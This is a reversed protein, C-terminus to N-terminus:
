ANGRVRRAAGGQQGGEPVPAGDADPDAAAPAGPAHVVGDVTDPGDGSAAAGPGTAELGRVAEAATQQFESFIRRAAEAQEVIARKISHDIALVVAAVALAVLALSVARRASKAAATAAAVLAEPAIDDTAV